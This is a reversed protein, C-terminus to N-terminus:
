VTRLFDGEKRRGFFFSGELWLPIYPLLSVARACGPLFASQRRVSQPQLCLPSSGPNQPAVSRPGCGLVGPLFPLRAQM